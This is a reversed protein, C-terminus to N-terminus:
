DPVLTNHGASLWDSYSNGTVQELLAIDDTFYPLVAARQDRTLKPRRGTDRHLLSLLPERFARRVPVPFHYGIRGGLRLTGRLVDNVPTQAPYPRVNEDPVEDIMGTRVGLFACAQNLTDTPRDRLDRYRLVLVQERPFLGYLHTLQEGYRGQGVYHWFHAWGAARRRPEIRCATVFDREPELGAAWLHAWNSHARDVPDRLMAILRAHPLLRRIRAQADLDYLYFPTAEGRWTGPPAADFLAEYAERRWVHEGHTQRDGPGGRHRPPPGDSLFFKPEKVGPLFLQPHRILAAYLATTGAKPVGVVLFDPLAV